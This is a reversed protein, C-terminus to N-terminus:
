KTTTQETISVGYPTLWWILAELEEFENRLYDYSAEENDTTDDEEVAPAATGVNVSMWDTNQHNNCSQCLPIIFFKSSGHVYVHGGGFAAETCGYIRCKQPSKKETKCMWFHKWSQFGIPRFSSTRKINKVLDEDTLLIYSM